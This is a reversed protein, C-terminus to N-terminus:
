EVPVNVSPGGIWAVTLQITAIGATTGDPVQFDVRYIDVQGPWGVAQGPWGVTNVVDVPRGNMTIAVPSNVAQLENPFPQGPNVGPLTPGLGSAEVILVEGAKAPKAATVPSFDAHFIAVIHPQSIPIVQLVFRVRGGGNARRNAPDEAMSAARAPVTQPTMRQGMQGRAGLFAGTGGVIAHSGGGTVALPAGPPFSGAGGNVGFVMIAGVPSGDNKLIEFTTERISARTTDAIAQGPNPAPNTIIARVGAAYTGKSPQGNVAVIDGLVTAVFFNKPPAAPTANPNTAIRSLDSIDGQYEVFNEVDVELITPATAQGLALNGYVTVLLVIMAFFETKRIM